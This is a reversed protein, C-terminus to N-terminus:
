PADDERCVGHHKGAAEDVTRDIYRCAAVRGVAGWSGPSSAGTARASTAASTRRPRTGVGTPTSGDLDTVAYRDALAWSSLVQGSLGLREPDAALAAIGRGVYRPTESFMFHPDGAAGDQWADETTGMHELMAESRLFGPTVAVSTVGKDRLEEAFAFALRIVTTKVLDYFLTGRYYLADGDTIEM